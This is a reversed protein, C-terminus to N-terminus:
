RMPRVGERRVIGAAGRLRLFDLDGCRPEPQAYGRELLPLGGVDFRCETAGGRQSCARVDHGGTTGCVTLALPDGLADIAELYRGHKGVVHCYFRTSQHRM